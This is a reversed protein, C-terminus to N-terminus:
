SWWLLMSKSSMEKKEMANSSLAVPSSIEITAKDTMIECIPQDANVTEGENIFWKVLEGEVVGEGVEPLELVKISERIRPRAKFAFPKSRQMLYAIAKIYQFPDLCLANDVVTKATQLPVDIFIVRGTKSVSQSLTKADISESKKLRHNGTLHRRKGSNWPLARLGICDVGAVLVSTLAKQVSATLESAHVRRSTVIQM